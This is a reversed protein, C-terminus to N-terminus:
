VQHAEGSHIERQEGSPLTLILNGKNNVGSMVGTINQITITKNKLYDIKDWEPIFVDFNKIEFEKIYDLLTTILFTCFENRNIEKGTIDKLSIWPDQSMNINIGTGIVAHTNHQIEVLIGALKKNQCMVDNPWKAFFEAEPAFNELTKIVALSVVLSLGMFKKLPLRLSFYLNQGFPSHWSRNERGHGATQTEALCIQKDYRAYNLLYTNTSDIAEFIELPINTLILKKDLLKSM